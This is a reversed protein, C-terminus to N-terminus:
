MSLQTGKLTALELLRNAHQLSVIASIYQCCPKLKTCLHTSLKTMMWSGSVKLCVDSVNVAMNQSSANIVVSVLTTPRPAQGLHVWEAGGEAVKTKGPVDWGFM